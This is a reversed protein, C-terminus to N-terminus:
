LLVLGEHTVSDLTMLTRLFDEPSCTGTTLMLNLSGEGDTRHWMVVGQSCWTVRGSAIYYCVGM